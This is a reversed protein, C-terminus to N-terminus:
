GRRVRAVPGAGVEAGAGVREGVGAGVEEWVVAGVASRFEHGNGGRVGLGAGLWENGGSEGM